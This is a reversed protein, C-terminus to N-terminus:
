GAGSLLDITQPCAGRSTDSACESLDVEIGAIASELAAAFLTAAQTSTEDFGQLAAITYARDAPLFPFWAEGNTSGSDCASAFRVIKNANEDILVVPTGVPANVLIWRRSADNFTSDAPRSSATVYESIVPDAQLSTRWTIHVRREILSPQDDGSPTCADTSQGARLWRSTMMVTLKTCGPTNSTCGYPVEAEFVYDGAGGNQVPLGPIRGTAALTRLSACTAALQLAETPDSQTQCGFLASQELINAASVATADRAISRALSRESSALTAGAGVLVVLILSAAVLFEVISIGRNRRRARTHDLM